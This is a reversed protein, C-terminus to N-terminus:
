PWVDRPVRREGRLDERRRRLRLAREARGPLREGQRPVREHLRPPAGRQPDHLHPRRPEDPRDVLSSGRVRGEARGEGRRQRRDRCPPRVGAGQPHPPRRGAQARTHVDVGSPGASRRVRLRLVGGHAPQGRHHARKPRHDRRCRVDGGPVPPFALTQGKTRITAYRACM